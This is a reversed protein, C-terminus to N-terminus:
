MMSLTWRGAPPSPHKFRHVTLSPPPRNRDSHYHLNCTMKSGIKVEFLQDRILGKKPLNTEVIANRDAWPFKGEQLMFDLGHEYPTMREAYEANGRMECTKSKRRMEYNEARGPM